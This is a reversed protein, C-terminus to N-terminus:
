FNVELNSHFLIGDGGVVYPLSLAGVPSHELWIFENNWRVTQNKWPYLNAGLRVDSPEGYEGFIKSGSVYAQVKEPKLKITSVHLLFKRIANKSYM